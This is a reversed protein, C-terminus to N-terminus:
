GGQPGWSPRYRSCKVKVKVVMLLIQTSSLSTSEQNTLDLHLICDTGSTPDNL